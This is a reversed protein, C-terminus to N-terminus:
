GKASLHERVEDLLKASRAYGIRLVEQLLSPSYKGTRVVLETARELLPDSVTGEPEFKMKRNIMHEVLGNDFQQKIGNSVKVHVDRIQQHPIYPAQVRTAEESETTKYLLDGKGRLREAGSEGLIIKSGAESLATNFALRTPVSGRIAKTFIASSPKASSLVLHIGHAKSTLALSVIIGEVEKPRVIMLDLLEDIIIVIHPLIGNEHRPLHKNYNEIGETETSAFLELRRNRELLAWDLASIASDVDWVVPCLLNLIRNYGAFQVRRSDILVLRLNNTPSNEVLSVVLTELFLSRGSGTAGAILINLYKSLDGIHVLGSKDKGLVFKLPSDHNKYDTSALIDLLPVTNSDNM